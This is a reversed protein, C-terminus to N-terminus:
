GMPNGDHSSRGIVGSQKGALRHVGPELHGDAAADSAGARDNAVDEPQGDEQWWRSTGLGVPEGQRVGLVREPGVYETSHLKLNLSAKGCLWDNM